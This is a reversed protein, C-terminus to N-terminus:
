ATLVLPAGGRVVITHEVHASMSADATRVTWGDAALRVAAGGAAVLPEITMVLGETLPERLSPEYVNPVDPAEHVRRGIGHGMLGDCVAFGAAHVTRQVTEGITNLPAGTRAVELARALAREATRVLQVARPRPTGVLVTRCADAYFGDLEATVDLKVLDGARLRRRGPIGHVAEDNVSICTVGPFGYDLQPGSRAGARAFLHAAIADLEATSVGPAVARRMARITDAVVKGAAQLARLEEPTSVSM